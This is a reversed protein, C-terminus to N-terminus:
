LIHHALEYALEEGAHLYELVVGEPDGSVFVQLDVLVFTFVQQDLQLFLEKASAKTRRHPKFNCLINVRM